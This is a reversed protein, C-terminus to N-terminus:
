GSEVSCFLIYGAYDVYQRGDVVKFIGANDGSKGALLMSYGNTSTISYNMIYAREVSLKYYDVDPSITGM